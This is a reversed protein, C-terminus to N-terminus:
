KIKSKKDKYLYKHQIIHVNPKNNTKTKKIMQRENREEKKSVHSRITM